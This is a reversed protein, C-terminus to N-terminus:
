KKNKRTIWFEKFNTINSKAFERLIDAPIEESSFLFDDGYKEIKKQRRYEEFEEHTKKRWPLERFGGGHNIHTISATKINFQYDEVAKGVIEYVDGGDYIYLVKKLKLDKPLGSM